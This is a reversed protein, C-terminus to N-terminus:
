TSCMITGPVAIVHQTKCGNFLLTQVTDAHNQQFGSGNEGKRWKRERRLLKMAQIKRECGKWDLIWRHGGGGRRCRLYARRHTRVSAHLCGRFVKSYLFIGAWRGHASEVVSCCSSFFKLWLKISQFWRFRERHIWLHAVPQSFFTERVPILAACDLKRAPGRSPGEVRWERPAALFAGHGVSVAESRAGHVQINGQPSRSQCTRCAQPATRESPWSSPIVTRHLPSHPPSVLLSNTIEPARSRNYWTQMRPTTKPMDISVSTNFSCPMDMHFSQMSCLCLPM